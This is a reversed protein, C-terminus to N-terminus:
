NSSIILVHVRWIYFIRLTRFSRVCFKRAAGLALAVVLASYGKSAFDYQEHAAIKSQVHESEACYVSEGSVRAGSVERVDDVCNRIWRASVTKEDLGSVWEASQQRRRQKQQRLLPQRQQALAIEASYMRQQRNALEGISCKAVPVLGTCAGQIVLAWMADHYCASLGLYVTSLSTMFLGFLMVAKRGYKDIFWDPIKQDFLLSFEM